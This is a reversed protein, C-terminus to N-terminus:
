PQYAFPVTFCAVREGAGGPVDHLVVSGAEGRRLGWSKHVTARGRGSRDTTFDLCVENAADAHGPREVNQYHGGAAAPDAGCPERHVHAGYARGPVLGEVALRVTTGARSGHQDVEVSAGPPVLRHDYTVAASHVFATPPAFRAQTHLWYGDAAGGSGGGAALVAAALAGSVMGAVM